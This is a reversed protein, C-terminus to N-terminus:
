SFGYFSGPMAPAQASSRIASPRGEPPNTTALIPLRFAVPHCSRCLPWQERLLVQPGYCFHQVRVAYMHVFQRLLDDV